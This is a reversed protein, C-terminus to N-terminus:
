VESKRESREQKEFIRLVANENLQRALNRRPALDINGPVALSGGHRGEQPRLARFGAIRRCVLVVRVLGVDVCLRFRAIIVISRVKLVPKAINTQGKAHGIGKVPDRLHRECYFKRGVDVRWIRQASQNVRTQYCNETQQLWKDIISTLLDNIM